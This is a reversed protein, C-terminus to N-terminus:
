IQVQLKKNGTETFILITMEVHVRPLCLQPKSSINANIPLQWCSELQHLALANNSSAKPMKYADYVAETYSVTSWLPM